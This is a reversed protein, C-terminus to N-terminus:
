MLKCTVIPLFCQHLASDFVVSNLESKPGLSHWALWSGIIIILQLPLEISVLWSLDHCLQMVGSIVSPLTSSLISKNFSTTRMLHSKCTINVCSVYM